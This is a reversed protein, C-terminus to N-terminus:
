SSVATRVGDMTGIMNAPDVKEAIKLLEVGKCIFRAVM